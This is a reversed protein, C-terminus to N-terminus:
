DALCVNPSWVAGQGARLYQQLLEAKHTEDSQCGVRANAVYVRSVCMVSHEEITRDDQTNPDELPKRVEVWM